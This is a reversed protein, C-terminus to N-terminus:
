GVGRQGREPVQPMMKTMLFTSSNDVENRTSQDALLSGFAASHNDKRSPGQILRSDCDYTLTNLEDVLNSLKFM